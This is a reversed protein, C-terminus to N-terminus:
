IGMRRVRGSKGAASHQGPQRVVAGPQARVAHRGEAVIANLALVLGRSQPHVKPVAGNDFVSITGDPLTEADHQYATRTGAGLKVTSRKGGIWAQLRGSATNMLYM